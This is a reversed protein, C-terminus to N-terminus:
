DQEGAEDVRRAAEDEKMESIVKRAQSRTMGGRQLDREVWRWSLAEVDEGKFAPRIGPRPM